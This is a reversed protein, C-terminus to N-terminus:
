GRSRKACGVAEYKDLGSGQESCVGDVGNEEDLSEDLSEELSHEIENVSACTAECDNPLISGTGRGHIGHIGGVYTDTWGQGGRRSRDMGDM